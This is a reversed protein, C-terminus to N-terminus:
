ESDSIFNDKQFEELDFTGETLEPDNVSKFVFVRAKGAPYGDTFNVTVTKTTYKNTEYRQLRRFVEPSRTPDVWVKGQVQPKPKNSSEEGSSDAPVIAPYQGWMKAEYGEIWAERFVPTGTVQTVIQLMRHDMLSGYFFYTFLKDDKPKDDTPLLPVVHTLGTRLDQPASTM